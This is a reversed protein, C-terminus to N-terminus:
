SFRTHARFRKYAMSIPIILQPWTSTWKCLRAALAVGSHAFIHWSRTEQMVLLYRNDCGIELPRFNVPSAFTNDIISVLGNEKAFAVIAKHDAM